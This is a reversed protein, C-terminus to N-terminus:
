VWEVEVMIEILAALLNIEKDGYMSQYKALLIVVFPISQPKVYEKISDYINRYVTQTDQCNLATWKKVENFNKDKLYGVLESIDGKNKIESLIGVDIKGSVSYRQLENLITRMDPFNSSILTTIVEKSYEIGEIKLISLVRKYFQTMLSKKENEDVKFEIPVCRSQIAEIIRDLSNTTIIFSCNSSFTEYFNKAAEQAQFTLGEGEDFIIVKRKGNFSMSSAFQTVKDRIVDIGNEKSANIIMYEVELQECLAKALTTKGTGFTGYFIFHPIDGKEIFENITKKINKPLICDGVLSPRYKQAWIFEKEFCKM